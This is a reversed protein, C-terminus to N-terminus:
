QSLERASGETHQTEALTNTTDFISASVRPLVPLIPASVNSYREPSKHVDIDHFPFRQNDEEIKPLRVCDQTVQEVGNPITIEGNVSEPECPRQEPRSSRAQVQDSSGTQYGRSAEAEDGNDFKNRQLEALSLGEM